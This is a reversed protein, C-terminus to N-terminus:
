TAPVLCQLQPLERRAIAQAGELPMRIMNSGHGNGGVAAVGERPALILSHLQPPEGRTNAQAGKLAM